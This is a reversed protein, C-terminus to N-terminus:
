LAVAAAAPESTCVSLVSTEQPRVACLVYCVACLVSCHTLVTSVTNLDLVSREFRVTKMLILFVPIFQRL